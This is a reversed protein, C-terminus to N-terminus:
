RRRKSGARGACTTWTSTRARCGTSRRRSTSRGGRSRRARRLHGDAGRVGATGSRARADQEGRFGTLAGHCCIVPLNLGLEKAVRIPVDVGRGTVLVVRIGATLANKIATRNRLSITEDPALLTGDLDLAILDIPPIAPMRHEMYVVRAPAEDGHPRGAPRSLTRLAPVTSHTSRVHASQDRDADSSAAPITGADACGPCGAARQVCSVKGTPPWYTM